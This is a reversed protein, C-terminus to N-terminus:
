VDGVFARYVHNLTFGLDDYLRVAPGNGADVYLM